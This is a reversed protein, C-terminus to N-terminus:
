PAASIMPTRLAAPRHASTTPGYPVRQEEHYEFDTNVAWVDYAAGNLNAVTLMAAYMSHDQNNYKHMGNRGVTHLNPIPDLFERVTELRERYTTDYVPYADPVRVV